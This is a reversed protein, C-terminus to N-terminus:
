ERSFLREYGAVRGYLGGYLLLASHSVSVPPFQGSLQEEALRRKRGGVQELEDVGVDHGEPDEGGGGPSLSSSTKLVVV